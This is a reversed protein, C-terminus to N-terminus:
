SRIIGSVRQDYPDLGVWIDRGINAFITYDFGMIPASERFLNAIGVASASALRWELWGSSVSRRLMM